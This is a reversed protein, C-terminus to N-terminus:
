GLRLLWSIQGVEGQAAKRTADRERPELTRSRPVHSVLELM